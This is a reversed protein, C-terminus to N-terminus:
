AARPIPPDLVQDDPIAHEMSHTRLRVLYCIRQHRCEKYLAFLFKAYFAVGLTCVTAMSAAILMGVEELEDKGAGGCQM